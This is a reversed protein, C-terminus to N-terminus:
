KSNLSIKNNKIYQKWCAVYGGITINKNEGRDFCLDTFNNLVM